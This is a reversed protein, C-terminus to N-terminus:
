GSVIVPWSNNSLDIDPCVADPDVTVSELEEETEFRVSDIELTRDVRARLREGSTTVAEVVVPFSAAGLRQVPVVWGGEVKEPEGVAYDLVADSYIWDAAFWDLPKGLTEECLELFETATLIGGAKKTVIERILDYFKDEGILNMLMRCVAIAKGHGIGMNWKWTWDGEENLIDSLPRALTTDFGQQRAIHYFRGLSDSLGTDMGRAILFSRDTILGLGVTVWHVEERPQNVLSGFYQHAVEHAVLWRYQEDFRGGMFITIVNCAASSGHGFQPCYIDLHDTPFFGLFDRYFEIADATAELLLPAREASLGYYYVALDVDGARSRQVQWQASGYITFGRVGEARLSLTKRGEGGTSEEVVRGTSAVLMEGPLDILIEYRSPRDDDKTWRGGRFSQAKAYWADLSYYPDDQLVLLASGLFRRGSLRLGIAAEFRKGPQLPAPLSVAVCGRESSIKGFEAPLYRWELEHGENDAVSLVEMAGPISLNIDLRLRIEGLDAGSDNLYSIKQSGELTHNGADLSLNFLYFDKSEIELSGALAAVCVLFLFATVTPCIRSSSGIM